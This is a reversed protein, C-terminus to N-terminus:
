ELLEVVGLCLGDLHDMECCNDTVHYGPSRSKWLELVEGEGVQAVILEGGAHVAALEGVLTNGLVLHGIALHRSFHRVAKDLVVEGEVANGRQLSDAKYM